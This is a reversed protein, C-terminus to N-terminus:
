SVKTALNRADFVFVRKEVVVFIFTEDKSITLLEGGVQNNTKEVVFAQKQGNRYLNVDKELISLIVDKVFGCLLYVKNGEEKVTAYYGYLSSVALTQTYEHAQAFRSTFDNL